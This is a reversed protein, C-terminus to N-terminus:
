LLNIYFVLLMVKNQLFLPITSAQVPTMHTFGFSQIATLSNTSLAPVLDIFKLSTNSENLTM